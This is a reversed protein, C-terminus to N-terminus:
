RGLSIGFREGAAAAGQAFLDFKAILLSGTTVIGDGSTGFLVHVVGADAESGLDEFSVGISLDALGDGDYDGVALSSGFQDNEEAVGSIGPSSQDLTTSFAGTLGSPTGRLVIVRGALSPTFAQGLAAIALDDYGNSDFDGAVLEYGFSDDITPSGAVGNLGPGYIPMPTNPGSASGLAIFVIGSSLFNADVTAHACGIAIDDFGDGNFNGVEVIPELYPVDLAVPNTSSVPELLRNGNARLGKSSGFIVQVRGYSSPSGKTTEGTVSAVLDDFGDGNLDGVALNEGFFEDNQCKDKMGTRDQHWIQSGKTRIGNASGYFVHTSGSNEAQGINEKLSSVALDDFGDGNFDGVAMEIGFLDEEEAKDKVDKKNQDLTVLRDFAFPETSGPLVFVRGAFPQGGVTAGYASIVLDDIGDGDFDGSTISRGLILNEQYPMGLMVSDIEFAESLIPGSASGPVVYVSGSNPLSDHTIGTAGIVLEEFGDGNFDGGEAVPLCGLSMGLLAQVRIRM